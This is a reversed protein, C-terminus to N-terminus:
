RISDRLRKWRARQETWVPSAVTSRLAHEHIRDRGARVESVLIEEQIDPALLLLALLRTIRARTFGFREALETRDRVEGRDVLAQEAHACALMQAVRLPRARRVGNAEAPVADRGRGRREFA